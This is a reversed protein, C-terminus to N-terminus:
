ARVARAQGAGSLTYGRLIRDVATVRPLGLGGLYETELAGVRESKIRADLSALPDTGGQLAYALEMQADKIAQPVTDPDIPWGDVLGSFLRPWDRAQFQYQKLGVFEYQADMVIAARRLNAENAADTDELTWGMAAARATYEALTAYSDAATGGITTDLAM